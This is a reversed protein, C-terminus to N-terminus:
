KIIKNKIAYNICHKCLWSRSDAYKKNKDYYLDLFRETSYIEHDLIQYGHNRKQGCATKKKDTKSINLHTKM